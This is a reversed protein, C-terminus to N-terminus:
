LWLKQIARALYKLNPVLSFSWSPLLGSNGFKLFIVIWSPRRGWRPNRNIFWLKEVTQALFMLNPLLKFIALGYQCFNYFDVSILIVSPRRGGDRIETLTMVKSRSSSSVEFKACPWLDVFPVVRSQWFQCFDFDLIATPRWRPNRSQPWLKQVARALCKLNPM